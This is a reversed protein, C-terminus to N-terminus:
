VRVVMRLCDRSPAPREHVLRFVMDDERNQQKQAETLQGRLMANEEKLKRIEENKQHLIVGIANLRKDKVESM